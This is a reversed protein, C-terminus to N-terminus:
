YIYASSHIYRNRLTVLLQLQILVDAQLATEIIEGLFVNYWHFKM